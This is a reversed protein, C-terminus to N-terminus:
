NNLSFHLTLIHTVAKSLQRDFGKPIILRIFPEPKLNLFTLINNVYATNIFIFDNARSNIFASFTIRYRNKSLTYLVTFHRGKILRSLDIKM